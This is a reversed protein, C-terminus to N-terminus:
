YHSTNEDTCLNLSARKARQSTNEDELLSARKARESVQSTELPIVVLLENIHQQKESQFKSIEVSTSSLDKNIQRERGIHRDHTKKLDDLEKQFEGLVEEQDLRKERLKLINEYLNTDCGPPCSDDVEEDEVDEDEDEDEDYDSEEDSEDGGEAENKKKARKIKRKFIRILQEHFAHNEPAFKLFEEMILKDKHQWVGLETKKSQLRSHCDSINAVVEGKERQCKELKNALMDDKGEFDNLLHLEEGLVLLRLEAAKLEASYVIRDRRL